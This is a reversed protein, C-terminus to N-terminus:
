SKKGWLYKCLRIIRCAMEPACIALAISSVILSVLNNATGNIYICAILVSVTLTLLWTPLPIHIM